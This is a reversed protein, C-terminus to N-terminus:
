APGEHHAAELAREKLTPVHSRLPSRPSPAPPPNHSIGEDSAQGVPVFAEGRAVIQGEPDPMQRATRACRRGGAAAPRSKRTCRVNPLPRRTRSPKAVSQGRSQTHTDLASTVPVAGGDRATHRPGTPRYVLYNVRLAGVGWCARPRVEGVEGVEDSKANSGIAAFAFEHM